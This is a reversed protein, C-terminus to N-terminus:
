CAMTRDTYGGFDTTWYWRYTATPNYARGIGLVTYAPNLMAADHAPSTRWQDFTRASTSNGAAMNEGKSTSFMYGLAGLRTSFNRGLSDTHSFYNLTAMDASMWKSARTLAVSLRLPAVGNQARYKNIQGCFSKEEADLIPDGISYAAAPSTVILSLLAVLLAPTIKAM